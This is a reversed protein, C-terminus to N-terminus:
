FETNKGVYYCGGGGGGGSSYRDNTQDDGGIGGGGGGGGGAGAGGSGGTDSHSEYGGAGGQSIGYTTIIGATGGAGGGIPSLKSVDGGKGGAALITGTNATVTTYLIIVCGGGGGGGSSASTTNVAAMGSADITSTFNLAGGCEIYLGGAGRGGAGSGSGGGAGCGVKIIKGDIGVNWFAGTGGVSNSANAGATALGFLGYANTILASGLSKLDIAPVQASTITVDGLVKLILITGNASPNSFKLDTNGTITISSYQKKFLIASGLDITTTRGRTFAQNVVDPSYAVGVTLHTNDTIVTITKVVAGVIIRDGVTFETTFLTGNGLVSAGTSTITGTGVLNQLTLAGDSGDGAFKLKSNLVATTAIDTRYVSPVFFKQIYGNVSDSNEKISIENLRHYIEALMIDGSVPSPISPSAAPTGPRIVLISNITDYVLIDIKPNTNATWVNGTGAMTETVTLTTSGTKKITIKSSLDDIASTGSMLTQNGASLAVHNSNTSNPNNILDALNARATAVTAGILVQGAVASLTAKFTFIVGNITVTENDSTIIVIGLDGINQPPTFVPSDGGTYDVIKDGEAIKFPLVKLTMGPTAQEQVLTQYTRPKGNNAKDTKIVGATTNSATGIAGTFVDDAYKKTAFEEDDTPAVAASDMRPYNPSTFTWVGTVTEDNAKGSISEYFGATNSLVFISGGAHSRLLGATQTYPAKGLQNKVGTLTATGNANQTIGTFTISEEQGSSGPEITGFGLSGLDTMAITNGELDVLSSLIISTAGLVAGAGYLSTAQTQLPKFTDAM